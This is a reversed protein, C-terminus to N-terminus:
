RPVEKSRFSQPLTLSAVRGDLDHGVRHKRGNAWQLFQVGGFPFDSVNAV